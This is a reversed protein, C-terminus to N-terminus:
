MKPVNTELKHPLIIRTQLTRKSLALVWNLKFAMGDTNPCENPEKSYIKWQMGDNIQFKSFDRQQQRYICCNTFYM